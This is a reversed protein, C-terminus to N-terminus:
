PFTKPQNESELGVGFLYFDIGSFIMLIQNAIMSLRIVEHFNGYPYDDKLAFFFTYISILIFNQILISLSFNVV